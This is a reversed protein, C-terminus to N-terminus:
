RQAKRYAEALLQTPFASVMSLGARRIGYGLQMQCAPCGSVLVEAGTAAVNRMKRDLIKASISPHTINYTGAGGCCWDSEKMEVLEVGPIATLLQRPQATIGQGRVLHCPEHYTVKRRVTGLQDGFSVEILFESIDRVRSSFAQAREAWEDDGALLHAYEKTFSGCTACDTVVFDVGAKEFAAINQRAMQRALDAAGYNLHPVGCCRLSRPTVVECGNEALVSVTDRGASAFALNQACGLFYGVRLRRQGKAPAVEPLTQRLPRGDLAPAIQELQGLSFPLLGLLGAKRLLAQLGIKEYLYLPLMALELLAPRPLLGGFIPRKIFPQPIERDIKIKAAKILEAAKVGSPCVAVCAQCDLCRYMHDVLKPTLTLKGEAVARTLAIRGRPSDTENGLERYTPCVPLCLGCRMCSLIDGYQPLDAEAAVSASAKEEVATNAGTEVAM